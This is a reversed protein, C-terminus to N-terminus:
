EKLTSDKRSSRNEPWSESVCKKLRPTSRTWCSTGWKERNNCQYVWAEMIMEHNDKVTELKESRVQQTYQLEERMKRHYKRMHSLKEETKKSRKKIEERDNSTM